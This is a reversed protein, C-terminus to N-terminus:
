MDRKSNIIQLAKSFQFYLFCGACFGLVLNTLALFAVFLVLGWGTLTLELLAIFIYSIILVSGGMAQAFLHPTSIENVVEPKVWGQPKIMRHYIQQFLALKPYIAGIMMILGLCLVILPLELLFASLSFFIIFFQNTKLATRDVM